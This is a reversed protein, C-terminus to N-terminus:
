ADRRKNAHRRKRRAVGILGALGSGFLWVTAPVPVVTPSCISTGTGTDTCSTIHMTTIDFNANYATFPTTPMPSGGVGIDGNTTDIYSDAVLPLTGSPGTMGIFPTGVKTTNRTTTAMLAPGIPYTTGGPVGDSDMETNDSAPLAGTGSLTQSVSLGGGLAGLFGAADWVISTPIANSGNWNFGMNGLVLTGPGGMGNGITQFSFPLAQSFNGVGYFSFPAFSMSGTATTSDYSLTGSISTRACQLSSVLYASACQSTDTNHLFPGIPSLMTFLGTWNATVTDAEASASVGLATIVAV